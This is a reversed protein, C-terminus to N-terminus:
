AIVNPPETNTEQTTRIQPEVFQTGDWRWGIGCYQTMEVLRSNPPPNWEANEIDLLITNTIVDDEIVAYSKVTM